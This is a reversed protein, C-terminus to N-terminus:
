LSRKVLNMLALWERMGVPEDDLLLEWNDWRTADLITRILNRAVQRIDDGRLRFEAVMFSCADFMVESNAIDIGNVNAWSTLQEVIAEHAAPTADPYDHRVMAGIIHLDTPRPLANPTM